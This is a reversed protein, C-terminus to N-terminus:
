VEPYEALSRLTEALEYAAVSFLRDLLRETPAPPYLPFGLRYILDLLGDQRNEEMFLTGYQFVPAYLLADEMVAEDESWYPLMMELSLCLGKGTADEAVFLIVEDHSYGGCEAAEPCVVGAPLIVLRGHPDLGYPWERYILFQELAECAKAQLLDLDHYFQPRLIDRQAILTELPIFDEEKDASRPNRKEVNDVVLRLHPRKREDKDHTM